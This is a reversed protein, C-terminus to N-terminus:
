LTGPGPGAPLPAARPARLIPLDPPHLFPFRVPSQQRGYAYTLLGIVLGLLVLGGGFETALPKNVLNTMWAVAVLVTTLVGVGFGLRWALTKLAPRMQGERWRGIDLSLCPLMLQGL